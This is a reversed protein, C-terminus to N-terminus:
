AKIATMGIVLITKQYAGFAAKRLYRGKCLKVFPGFRGIVLHALAANCSEWLLREVCPAANKIALLCCQASLSRQLTQKLKPQASKKVGLSLAQVQGLNRFGVNPRSAVQAM